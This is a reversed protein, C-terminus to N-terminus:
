TIRITSGHGAYPMAEVGKDMLEAGHGHLHPVPSREVPTALNISLPGDKDCRYTTGLPAHIVGPSSRRDLPESCGHEGEGGEEEGCGGKRM